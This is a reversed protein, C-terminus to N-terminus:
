SQNELLSQRIAYDMTNSETLRNQFGPPPQTPGGLPAGANPLSPWSSFSPNPNTHPFNPSHNVPADTDVLMQLSRMWHPTEEMPPQKTAVPTKNGSSIIAPDSPFSSSGLGPPPALSNYRDNRTGSALGIRNQFYSQNRDFTQPFFSSSQSPIQSSPEEFGSGMLQHGPGFHNRPSPRRVGVSMDSQHMNHVPNGAANSTANQNDMAFNINVSPLLARFGNQWDSLKKTPSPPFNTKSADFSSSKPHFGHHMQSGLTQNQTLNQTFGGPFGPLKM